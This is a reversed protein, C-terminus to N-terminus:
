LGAYIGDKTAISMKKVSVLYLKSVKVNKRVSVCIWKVKCITLLKYHNLIKYMNCFLLVNQITLLFFLKM